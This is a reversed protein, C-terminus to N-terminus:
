DNMQAKLVRVKTFYDPQLGIICFLISDKNNFPYKFTSCLSISICVNSQSNNSSVTEVFKTNSSIKLFTQYYM